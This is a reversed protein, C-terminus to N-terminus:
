CVYKHDHAYFWFIRDFGHSQDGLFSTLELYTKVSIIKKKQLTFGSRWLPIKVHSKLQNLFFLIDFLYSALCATENQDSWYSVPLGNCRYSTYTILYWGRSLEHVLRLAIRGGGETLYLIQKKYGSGCPELNENGTTTVRITIFIPTTQAAMLDNLSTQLDKCTMLSTQQWLSNSM